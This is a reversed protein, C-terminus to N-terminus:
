PQVEDEDDIERGEDAIAILRREEGPTLRAPQLHAKRAADSLEHANM